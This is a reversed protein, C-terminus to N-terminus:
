GTGCQCQPLCHQYNDVNSHEVVIVHVTSLCSLESFYKWVIVAEFIRLKIKYIHSYIFKIIVVFRSFIMFRLLNIKYCIDLMLYQLFKPKTQMTLVRLGFWLIVLLSYALGILV